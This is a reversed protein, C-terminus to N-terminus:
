RRGGGLFRLLAAELLQSSYGGVVFDFAHQAYPIALTDFAVARERLKSALLDLHERPVMQDRGGHVLLTRPARSTVRAVPSLARWREFAKEPPAGLFARM